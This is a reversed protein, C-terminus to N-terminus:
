TQSLRTFPARNLRALLGYFALVGELRGTKPDVVPVLSREKYLIQLGRMLPTSRQVTPLKDEALEVVPKSKIADFRRRMEDLTESAFSVDALGGEMTVVRPLLLRCVHGVGFIGKFRRQDDIVPVNHFRERLLVGVAQEVTMTAPVTVPDAIMIEACTDIERESPTM